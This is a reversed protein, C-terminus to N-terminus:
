GINMKDVHFRVSKKKSLLPIKIIETEKQSIQELEKQEETLEKNSFQEPNMKILKKAEELLKTKNGAMRHKYFIRERRTRIESVRNIAKLTNAVVDRNYRIPINRRSAFTLTTDIAMEKGTAKRFAKTWAVKRPNRRMKFNKHCKSKCFRFEKADNRVFIIGHGPYIPGSCFYCTYIRM